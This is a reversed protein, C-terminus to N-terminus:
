RDDGLVPTPLSGANHEALWWGSRGEEAVSWCANSLAGIARWREVPLGLLHGLLSRATGGHTVVVLLSADPLDELQGAVAARAREAVQSRTEAGGAAVDAGQRWALYRQPDREAIDPGRLGEWVGGDTERLRPDLRVELGTSSALAAATASARVLDSSVIRDPELQALLAAARGVQAVGVDDLPIDTHGQFRNELNWATRGHRWVVV